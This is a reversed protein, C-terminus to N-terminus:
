KNKGGLQVKADGFSSEQSELKKENLAETLKAAMSGLEEVDLMETESSIANGKEEEEEEEDADEEEASEVVEDDSFQEYNVPDLVDIVPKEFQAVLSRTWSEFSGEM